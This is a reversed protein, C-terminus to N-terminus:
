RNLVCSARGFSLPVIGIGMNELELELPDLGRGRRAEMLVAHVYHLCIKCAFYGNVYIFYLPLMIINLTAKASEFCGIPFSYAFVIESM